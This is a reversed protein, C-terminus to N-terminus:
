IEFWVSAHTLFHSCSHACIRIKNSRCFAHLSMIYNFVPTFCWLVTLKRFTIVFPNIHSVTNPSVKATQKLLFLWNVKKYGRFRHSFDVVFPTLSQFPHPFLSSKVNNEIETGMKQQKEFRQHMGEDVPSLPPRFTVAECLYIFRTIYVQVAKRRIVHRSVSCPLFSKIM